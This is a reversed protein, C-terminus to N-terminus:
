HMIDFLRDAISKDYKTLEMVDVWSRYIAWAMAQAAPYQRKASLLNVVDDINEAMEQRSFGIPPMTKIAFLANHQEQETLGNLQATINDIDASMEEITKM